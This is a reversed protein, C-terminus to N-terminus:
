QYRAGPTQAHPDDDAAMDEEAGEDPTHGGGLVRLTRGWEEATTLRRDIEKMTTALDPTDDDQWVRAVVMAVGAVGRVRAEGKFGALDDGAMRLLMRMAQVLSDLLRLGLAPDRRAATDLQAVQRRHPAYTEFRHMLAEVIMDRVPVDGADEIDALTELAAQRDLRQLKHLILATISGAATRAAAPAVGAADAVDDIHIAQPAHDALMLWAADSLREMMMTPTESAAM